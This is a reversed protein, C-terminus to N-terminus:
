HTVRVVFYLFPNSVETFWHPVGKPIVIVDGKSLHRPTGGTSARARIEGVDTTKPEVLTGGTVVTATGEVIYFIDTDHEHVEVVGPAGRRSAHIKYSSSDVLHMGRAFADDIKAHDFFVVESPPPAPVAALSVIGTSLLALLVTTKM